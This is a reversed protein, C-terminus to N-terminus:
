DRAPPLVAYDGVIQGRNNIDVYEDRDSGGPPHDITTLVGPEALFGHSTTGAAAPLPDAPATSAALLAVAIGVLLARVLTM